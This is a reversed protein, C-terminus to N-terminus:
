TARYKVPKVKASDSMSMSGASKDGVAKEHVKRLGMRSLKRGLKQYHQEMDNDIEINITLDTTEPIDSDNNIAKDATKQTGSESAVCGISPHCKHQHARPYLEPHAHIRKLATVVSLEEDSQLDRAMVKDRFRARREEEEKTISHQTATVSGMPAVPAIGYQLDRAMVKERFRARREEEEKTTSHQTATISGMPAVPAIPPALAVPAMSTPTQLSLPMNGSFMKEMNEWVQKQGHTIADGQQQRKDATDSDNKMANKALGQIVIGESPTSHPTKQDALPYSERHAQILKLAHVVPLEDVSQLGGTKLRDSLSVRREVKTTTTTHVLRTHVSKTRTSSVLKPMKEWMQKGGDLVTDGEQHLKETHSDNKMAKDAAPKHIGSASLTPHPKPHARPYLEPHDQIWKMAAVISHDDDPDLGKAILRDRLTKKRDTKDAMNRPVANKEDNPKEGDTVAQGEQHREKSDSDSKMTENAPKHIVSASPTPHPTKVHLHPYLEPHDQIWKMSAVISLKDADHGAEKHRAMPPNDLREMGDRELDEKVTPHNAMTRPDTQTASATKDDSSTNSHTEKQQLKSLVYNIARVTNDEDEKEARLWNRVREEGEEKSTPHDPM